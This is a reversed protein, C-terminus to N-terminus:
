RAWDQTTMEVTRGAAIAEDIVLRLYQDQAGEAFSYFSEGTEVYRNMGLMVQGVAIEDDSLRLGTSEFDWDRGYYTRMAGGALAPLFQNKYVWKEGVTYGHLYCYDYEHTDMRTIPMVAPTDRDLLVRVTEDSIEGREGRVLVRQRRVWSGYQEGLFDYLGSRDGWDFVALTHACHLMKDARPRYTNYRCPGDLVRDKVEVATVRANEFGIGLLNRMLSLGHYDHAVSVQAHTVKGIMGGRAIQLRAAHIPVQNYQEAVQIRAGQEVLRSLRCLGELTAAPPTECLIPLGADALREILPPACDPNVALIAYDAQNERLMRELDDYAKVGWRAAFRAAKEPDRVYACAVQFREPLTRAVRLYFAARHGGGIMMLKM